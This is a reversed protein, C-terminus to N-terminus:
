FVEVQGEGDGVQGVRSLVYPPVNLVHILVHGESDGVQGVRSLFGLRSLIANKTPGIEPLYCKEEVIRLNLDRPGM